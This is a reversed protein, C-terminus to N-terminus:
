QKPNEKKSKPNKTTILLVGNKGEDGYKEIADKGKFVQISEIDETNLNLLVDIDKKKEGPEQAAIKKEGDVIYLPHPEEKPKVEENKKSTVSEKKEDQAQLAFSTTFLFLLLLTKM